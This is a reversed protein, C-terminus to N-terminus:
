FIGKRELKKALDERNIQLLAEKFRKRMEGIREDNGKKLCNILIKFIKELSKKAETSALGTKMSLFSFERLKVEIECGEGYLAVFVKIEKYTNNEDCADYFDSCLLGNYTVFVKSNRLLGMGVTDYSGFRPAKGVVVNGRAIIGNMGHYYVEAGLLGVVINEYKGAKNVKVEYYAVVGQGNVDWGYALREITTVILDISSFFKNPLGEPVSSGNSPIFTCRPILRPMAFSAPNNVIFEHVDTCNCRFHPTMYLLNYCSHSSHMYKYCYTCIPMNCDLCSFLLPNKSLFFSDESFHSCCKGLLHNTELKSPLCLVETILELTYKIVEMDEKNGKKKFILLIIELVNEINESRHYYPIDILAQIIRVVPFIDLNYVQEIVKSSHPGYYSMTDRVFNKDQHKKKAMEISRGTVGSDFLVQMLTLTNECMFDQVFEYFGRNHPDLSITTYVLGLIGLEGLKEKFVHDKPKKRLIKYFPELLEPSEKWNMKICKDIFEGFIDFKLLYEYVEHYYNGLILLKKIVLKQSVPDTFFLGSQLVEIEEVGCKDINEWNKLYIGKLIPLYSHSILNHIDAPSPNDQLTLRFLRDLAPDNERIPTVDAIHALDFTRMDPLNNLPFSGILSFICMAIGWLDSRSSSNLNDIRSPEGLLTCQSIPIVAISFQYLSASCLPIGMSGRLIMVTNPFICQFSSAKELIELLIIFIGISLDKELQMLNTSMYESIDYISVGELSKSVCVLYWSNDFIEFTDLVKVLSKEQFSEHIERLKKHASKISEYSGCHLIKVHVNTMELDFGLFTSPSSSYRHTLTYIQKSHTNYLVIENELLVVSKKRIDYAGKFIANLNQSM